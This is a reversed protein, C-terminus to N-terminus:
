DHSRELCEDGTSFVRSEQLQLELSVSHNGIIEQVYGEAGELMLKDVNKLIISDSLGPLYERKEYTKDM